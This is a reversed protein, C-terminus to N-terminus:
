DDYDDYDALDAALQEAQKALAPDVGQGGIDVVNEEQKEEAPKARKVPAKKAKPAEKVPEETPSEDAVEVPELAQPFNDALWEKVDAEDAEKAWELIDEYDFDESNKVDPHELGLVVKKTKPKSAPAEKKPPASKAKPAPASKAKPEEKVPAAKTEANPEDTVDKVPIRGASSPNNTAANFPALMEKVEDSDKLRLIEEFQEKNLTWYGGASTSAVGFKITAVEMKPMPMCKTVVAQTPIPMPVGNRKQSALTNMYWGYSGYREKVVTKDFLSKAKPEFVFPDSFTGDEYAIVGVVRRYYGCLQGSTEFAKCTKCKDSYPKEVNADPTEGNCSQCDPPDFEGSAKMEDFSRAYHVRSVFERQDIIVINVERGMDHVEGDEDILEWDGSNGMSLRATKNFQGGLGATMNKALEAAQTADFPLALGGMDLVMLDSM